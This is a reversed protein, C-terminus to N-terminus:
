VPQAHDRFPHLLPPMKVQMLQLIQHSQYKLNRNNLQDPLDACTVSKKNHSEHRKAVKIVMLEKRWLEDM